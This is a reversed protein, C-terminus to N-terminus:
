PTPGNAASELFLETLPLRFGPLVAGGDLEDTRSLGHIKALSEYVHVQRQQPYVVWVLQVGARFYEAIKEQLQEAIDTPSVVEVALAPVVDWANDLPSIPRNKPWREYPVLAVDPRRDRNLAAPLHFLGDSVVWGLNHARAHLDLSGALRTALWAAFIGMPPLGVRKGDIIEYLEDDGVSAKALNPVPEQVTATSM